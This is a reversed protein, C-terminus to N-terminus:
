VAEYGKLSSEDDSAVGSAPTGMVLAATAAMSPEGAGATQDQVTRRYEADADGAASTKATMLEELCPEIVKMRKDIKCTVVLFYIGLPTWILAQLYMLILWATVQSVPAVVTIFIAGACFVLGLALYIVASFLLQCRANKLTMQLLRLFNYDYLEFLKDRAIPDWFSDKDPHLEPEWKNKWAQVQPHATDVGNIFRQKTPKQAATAPAPQQTPHETPAELTGYGAGAPQQQEYIEKCPVHEM